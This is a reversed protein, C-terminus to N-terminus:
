PRERVNKGFFSDPSSEVAPQAPNLDATEENSSILSGQVLKTGPPLDANNAGNNVLIGVAKQEKGDAHVNVILRQNPEPRTSSGTGESTQLNYETLRIQDEAIGIQKLKDIAQEAQPRERFVGVVYSYDVAHM